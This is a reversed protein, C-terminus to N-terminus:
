KRNSNKLFTKWVGQFARVARRPETSGIVENIRLKFRKWQDNNLRRSLQHQSGKRLVDERTIFRHVDELTSMTPFVEPEVSTEVKPVKSELTDRCIAEGLDVSTSPLPRKVAKGTTVTAANSPQAMETEFKVDEIKLFVQPGQKKSGITNDTMAVVASIMDKQKEEEHDSNDFTSIDIALQNDKKRLSKRSHFILTKVNIQMWEEGLLDDLRDPFTRAPSDKNPKMLHPKLTVILDNYYAVTKKCYEACIRWIKALVALYLTVTEVYFAKALFPTCAIFAERACYIIRALIKAACQLRILFYEFSANTPINYKGKHMEFGGLIDEVTDLISLEKWRCLAVNTQRM